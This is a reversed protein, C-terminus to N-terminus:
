NSSAREVREIVLVEVPAETSELKLGLQERLATFISAGESAPGGELRLPTFALDFDWDGALGTRDIVIRQVQGSLTRVFDSLLVGRARFTAASGGLGDGRLGCEPSTDPAASPASAATARIRACSDDAPRRLQPGLRGDSRNAVLAYVSTKQIERRTVLQFRDELLARLMLLDRPVVGSPGLPVTGSTRAEIDWRETSVWTPAGVLQFVQIQYALTLVSSLTQNTASFSGDPFRRLTASSAGPRSPRVSAVDFALRAQEQAGVGPADVIISSIVFLFLRTRM